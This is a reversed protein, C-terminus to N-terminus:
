ATILDGRLKTKEMTFSSVEGLSGQYMMHKLIKVKEATEQQLSELKEV